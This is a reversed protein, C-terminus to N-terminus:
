VCEYEPAHLLPLNMLVDLMMAAANLPKANQRSTMLRVLFTPISMPAPVVYRYVSMILCLVYSVATHLLGMGSVNFSFFGLVDLVTKSAYGRRQSSVVFLLVARTQLRANGALGKSLLGEQRIAQGLQASPPRSVSVHSKAQCPHVLAQQRARSSPSYNTSPRWPSKM